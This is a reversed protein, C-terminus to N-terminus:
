KSSLNLKKNRAEEARQPMRTQFATRASESMNRTRRRCRSIREILLWERVISRWM